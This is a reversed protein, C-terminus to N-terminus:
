RYAILTRPVTQDIQAEHAGDTSVVVILIGKVEDLAM